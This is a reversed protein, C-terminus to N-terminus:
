RYADSSLGCGKSRVVPVVDTMERGIRRTAENNGMMDAM